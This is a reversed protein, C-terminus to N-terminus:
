LYRRLAKGVFLPARVERGSRSVYRVWKVFVASTEVKVGSLRRVVQTSLARLNKTLYTREFFEAPNQYM